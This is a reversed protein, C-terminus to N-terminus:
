AKAFACSVAIIEVVFRRFRKRLIVNRFRERLM